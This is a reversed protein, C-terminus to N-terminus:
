RSHSLTSADCRVFCENDESSPRPAYIVVDQGIALGTPLISQQYSTMIASLKGLDKYTPLETPLLLLVVNM